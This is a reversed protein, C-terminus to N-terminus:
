WPLIAARAWYGSSICASESAPASRTGGVPTGDEPKSEAKGPKNLKYLKAQTREETAILKELEEIQDLFTDMKDAEPMTMDRNENVALDRLNNIEGVLIKIEEQYQTVTKM